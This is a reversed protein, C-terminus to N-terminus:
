KEEKRLGLSVLMAEGLRRGSLWAREIGGKGEEEEGGERRGQWGDGCAGVKEREEWGFPEESPNFTQAYLWRQVSLYVPRPAREEGMDKKGGEREGEKGREVEKFFADLVNLIVKEKPFPETQIHSASFAPTAHMVWREGGGEKGGEGGPRGPTKLDDRRASYLIGEDEGKEEAKAKKWETFPAGVPQDWAAMVSLCSASKVDILPAALAPSVPELLPISQEAPVAVVVADFKQTIKGDDHHLIWQGRKNNDNNNSNYTTTSDSTTTTTTTTTTAACRDQEQQQNKTEKMELKTILFPRQISLGQALHTPLSRMSPHVVYHGPWLSPSSSSSSAPMVLGEEQWQQVQAQFEPSLASFHPAGHDFSGIGPVDRTACRGHTTSKEFLTIRPTPHAQLLVRACSLGAIGAGIIAINLPPPTTNSTATTTSSASSSSLSMM